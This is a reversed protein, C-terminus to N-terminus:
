GAPPTVGARRFAKANRKFIELLTLPRGTKAVTQEITLGGDRFLRGLTAGLWDDQFKPGRSRLFESFTTRAPLRGVHSRAWVSRVEAITKGQSKAMKVFDVRRREPTRVDVVFPRDGVLGDPSFVATIESRCNPHAPPRAGPPDLRPVNSYESPLEAVGPAPAVHGDRSACIRSTRGDLVSVWALVSVIDSNERWITERTETSWHRVATRVVTRASRRSVETAADAGRALRTGRVRRVIDEVSEGELWGQRVAAELRRQDAFDLDKLWQEQTRGLFPKGFVAARVRARLDENLRFAGGFLDPGEFGVAAKFAARQFAIESSVADRAARRFDRGFRLLARKRIEKVESLLVRLDSIDARSARRGTTGGDLRSRIAAVISAESDNLIQILRDALLEGSALIQLGREIQSDRYADNVTAM